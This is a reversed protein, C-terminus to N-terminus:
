QSEFPEHSRVHPVPQVLVHSPLDVHAPVQVALQVDLQAPVLWHVSVVPTFLSTVHLPPLLQSMVIPVPELSEQEPSLLQVIRHGSPPQVASQM